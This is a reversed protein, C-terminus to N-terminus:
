ERMAEIDEPTLHSRWSSGNEEMSGPEGTWGCRCIGVVLGDQIRIDFYHWTAESM